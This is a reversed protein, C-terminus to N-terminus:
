SVPVTLPLRMAECPEATTVTLVLPETDFLVVKVIAGEVGDILLILGGDACAPPGANARITFPARNAAPEVINHFPVGRAVVNPLALWNVPVTPAFRMAAVPVAVTVTDVFPATDFPEVNVM